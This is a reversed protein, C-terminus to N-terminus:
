GAYNGSSALADKRANVQEAKSQRMVRGGKGAGIEPTIEEDDEDDDEEGKGKKSKLLYKNEKVLAKLAEDVAEDDVEGEEDALDDLTESDLLKFAVKPNHLGMQTAKLLVANQVGQDRLKKALTENDSKLRLNEGKVQDVTAAEGDEKSKQAAQAKKLEKALRKREAREKQLASKLKSTDKPSDKPSDEEGDEEDDEEEVDREEEEPDDEETESDDKGKGKTPM